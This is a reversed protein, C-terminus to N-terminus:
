INSLNPHNATTHEILMKCMKKLEGVIEIANDLDDAEENLEDLNNVDIQQRDILRNKIELCKDRMETLAHLTM